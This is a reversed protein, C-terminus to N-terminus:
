ARGQTKTKEGLVRAYVEETRSVMRELGYREEAKARARKGWLKKKESESAAFRWLGEVIAGTSTGELVVGDTEDTVLSDLNAAPSVVSAVGSAMAELVANPMGEYESALLVGDSAAVVEGVDRVVGVFRVRSGLGLSRVKADLRRALAEDARRGAFIVSLDSGPGGRTRLAGLASIVADHNKEETVRAPMVLTTGQMQWHARLEERVRADVPKFVELDVGNEIVEIREKPIEAREVLVDRIGRSNAITAASLRWTMREHVLDRWPPRGNRVSSIARAGTARAALRGYVNLIGGFGHVIAPRLTRVLGTIKALTVVTAGDASRLDHLVVPLPGFENTADCLAVHAQWRSGDLRSVLAALQREAGGRHLSSVLFLVREASAMTFRPPM